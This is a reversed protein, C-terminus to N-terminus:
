GGVGCLLAVFVCRVMCCIRESPPSYDSMNTNVVWDGPPCPQPQDGPTLPDIDACTQNQLFLCCDLHIEVIKQTPSGAAVNM